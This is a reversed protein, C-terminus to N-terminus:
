PLVPLAAALSACEPIRDCTAGGAILNRQELPDLRLDFFEDRVESGAISRILKHSADRIARMHREPAFPVPDRMNPQFIEAYVTKRLPTGPESFYPVLSLSDEALRNPQAIRALECVTAFLDTSGVLATVEGPAIGPGRAILPVRVGGEYLTAKAHRPDFPLEVAGKSTGNDGIFLVIAGPAVEDIARLMRGIETDMAEVMARTYLARYRSAPVPLVGYGHLDDPPRHLPVHVANFAVYLLWPKGTREMAAARAIADDATDTTAYSSRLAEVGNTNKLWRFYGGDPLGQALNFMSGAYHDFGSRIPHLLGQGRDALHWKGVASHTYGALSELAEPLTTEEERLGPISPDSFRVIEGIGTRFGHRGTLIQARAPTCIPDTWANRFVLGERALRDLTPTHIPVSGGGEAYAGVLDVGLDDAVILVVDPPGGSAEGGGGARPSCSASAFLALCLLLARSGPRM